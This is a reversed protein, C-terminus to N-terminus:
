IRVVTAEGHSRVLFKSYLTPPNSAHDETLTVLWFREESRTLCEENRESRFDSTINYHYPLCATKIFNLNNDTNNIIAAKVEV